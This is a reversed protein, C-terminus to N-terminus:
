SYKRSLEGGGLALAAALEVGGGADHPQQDLHQLRVRAPDVVRAAARAAHEDLGLLEDDGVALVAAFEGDVALLEVLPGPPQGLHVEGDM